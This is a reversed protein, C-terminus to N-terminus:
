AFSGQLPLLAAGHLAPDNVLSSPVITPVPRAKSRRMQDFFRIHPIMREALARPVQGGIVIAEVDLIAGANSAIVSLSHRVKVLWDDVVSSAPDFAALMADISEFEQGARAFEVRLLELNPFPDITPQLGGAFEGANGHQGRWVRRDLVLGGGVGAGIFLYAFSAHREGVGFLSEALAAATGDNEAYAPLKLADGVISRVDVGAWAELALPTNFADDREFSGSVAIGVGLMPADAGVDHIIKQTSTRVWQLAATRNDPLAASVEAIPEGAFSCLMVAIRGPAISVGLTRAFAPTLTFSSSPYGRSGGVLGGREIAGREILKTLIRSASQQTVDLHRALHRQTVHRERLVLGLCRREVNTLRMQMAGVGTGSMAVVCAIKCAFQAVTM